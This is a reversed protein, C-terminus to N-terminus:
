FSTNTSNPDGVMGKHLTTLETFTLSLNYSSPSGDPTRTMFGNPTFDTTLNTLACTSIRPIYRNPKGDLWFVIDFSSPYLLFANGNGVNERFEPLQHFRFLRILNDLAEVEKANRPTLSWSWSFSRNDVKKFLAEAYNNAVSATALEVLEKGKLKGGALKSAISGVTNLGLQAGLRGGNGDELQKSYDVGQDIGMAAAGLDTNAWQVSTNFVLSKPIPLTISYDSRVFTNSFVKANSGQLGRSVTHIVPVEGYDSKISVNKPPNLGGMFELKAAGNRITNIFFTMALKDQSEGQLLDYPFIMTKSKGDYSNLLKEQKQAATSNAM